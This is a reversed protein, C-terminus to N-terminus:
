SYGDTWTTWGHDHYYVHFLLKSYEFPASMGQWLLVVSSSVLVSFNVFAPIEDM